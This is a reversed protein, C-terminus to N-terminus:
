GLSALIAKNLKDTRLKENYLKELEDSEVKPNFKIEQSSKSAEAAKGLITKKDEMATM